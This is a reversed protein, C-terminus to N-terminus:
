YCPTSSSGVTVTDAWINLRCTYEWPLTYYGLSTSGDYVTQSSERTWGSNNYQTMDPQNYYCLGASNPPYFDLTLNNRMASWTASGVIGDASLGFVGQMCKVAALTKSGFVGDVYNLRSSLDPYCGMFYAYAQVSAVTFSNTIYSTGIWCNASWGDGDNVVSPCGSPYRTGVYASAPSPVSVWGAVLVAAIAVAGIRQRRPV